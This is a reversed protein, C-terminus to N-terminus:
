RPRPRDSRPRLLSALYDDLVTAFVLHARHLTVGVQDGPWDAPLLESPLDPDDGGVEYVPLVAAAFSTMAEEPTPPHAEAYDIRKRSDDLVSRFRAALDDLDWLENAVRVSDEASLTVGVRLLQGGTPVPPLLSGLEEWRDTTAVLLGSRLPAYGLLQATRRLRDRFDRHREPVEYLVGNFTGNWVPRHGRLQRQLRAQTAQVVPTLRYRAQRGAPTSQLLGERRMRLLLARAAGESLGLDALLRILLPGAIEDGPRVGAVGFAFFVLGM